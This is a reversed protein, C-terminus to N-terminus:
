PAEKECSISDSLLRHLEGNELIWGPGRNRRTSSDELRTPLRVERPVPAVLLPM